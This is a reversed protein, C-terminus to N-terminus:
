YNTIAGLTNGPTAAMFIIWPHKGSLTMAVVFIESGLPMCTAALFSVLFLGLYGYQIVM